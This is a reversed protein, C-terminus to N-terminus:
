LQCLPITGQYPIYNHSTVTVNLNGNSTPYVNHFTMTIPNGNVTTDRHVFIDNAKYLCVTAQKGNPLNSITVTVTNNSGFSLSSPSSTVSLSQPIATWMETEPCGILTPELFENIQNKESM